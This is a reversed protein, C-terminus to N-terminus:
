ASDFLELSSPLENNPPTPYSICNQNACSRRLELSDYKSNQLPKIRCFVRMSGKLMQVHNHLHKRVVETRQLDEMLSRLSADMNEM